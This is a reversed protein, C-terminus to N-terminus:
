RSSPATRASSRTSPTDQAPDPIQIYDWGSTVNATVQFSLQGSSGVPSSVANTADNVPATTGDSFYITDPLDQPNPNDDVLYDTAGTSNPYNIDGAHILTHTQVSSILSTETGGLADSHSFTATFNDFVGQLSSLLLFSADATQGPAIDGLNVTLSPTESQNGVQTGIIQFTDLLGKENEVIQPQATTISLNNATGGGVNTVLLGLVAPESPEVQPTFPDDGIVDKQLFYNLHLNAQPDVTITSPFVPISVNGGAPDTFGITGGIRYLTPAGPAASDDPIFTFTITGTSNDPLTANGNVVSYAGSYSPSSVFFKGNAPNGQADTINIDMVVNTLAGRGTSNTISLTGSFASRTLTAAQDIQLKVTACVGQGALDSEFQKLAGQVEAGPDSYGNVQSQQEGNVATNFATQIAGIDLFDTSQGALVQAATFIGQSWYQVTRNWRDLFETAESSSVTSPLTTALLQTMEASTITGSGDSSNQADTFFATMWQQLTASQNTNLWNADGGFLLNEATTVAELRANVQQLLAIDGAIGLSAGQGSATAFIGALDAEVQDFTAITSVMQANQAPTYGDNGGEGNILGLNGLATAIFTLPSVNGNTGVANAAQDTGTVPPGTGIPPDSADNSAQGAQQSMNNLQPNCNETSVVAPPVVGGGSGALIGGTFIGVLASAVAQASCDRGPIHIPAVFISYVYNNLCVYFYDGGIALTCPGGPPTPPKPPPCKCPCAGGGPGANSNAPDGGVKYSGKVTVYFKGKSNVGFTFTVIKFTISASPGNEKTYQFDIQCIQKQPTPPPTTQNSPPTPPPTTQNSPPTPPPTTQNSPPTGVGQLGLPDLDNLPDNWVYRRLNTDGGALNIPDDSTFQGTSPDYSRATMDFLGSGDNSVGFQGVFTFPNASGASITTVQGFPDYSYKSVYSGLPNTIGVTSGQLNFDYYYAVGNASVQSTLGLGYTYHATLDGSGDFTAAVIGLDTPDVEDSTTVGNVTQSICNGLPDYGYSATLGPGNVATLQNLVNYTYTTTSGGVTQAILNGDADYQYSTTVGNTTSSTYENVNNTVYTTTM